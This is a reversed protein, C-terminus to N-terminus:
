CNALTATRARRSDSGSPPMAFPRSAAELIIDLSSLRDVGKLRENTKRDFPVDIEESLRSWARFHLEATDTLVGDLDFIVADIDSPAVVPSAETCRCHAVRDAPEAHRAL